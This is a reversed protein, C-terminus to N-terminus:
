YVNIDGNDRRGMVYAGFSVINGDDGGDGLTRAIMMQLKLRAKFPQAFDLFFKHPRRNWQVLWQLTSQIVIDEYGFAIVGGAM